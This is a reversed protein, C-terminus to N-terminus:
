RERRLRGMRARRGEARKTGLDAGTVHHGTPSLFEALTSVTPYQFLDTMALEYGQSRLSNLIQVVLVSHGGLDFFSDQTGVQKVHLAECWMAAIKEELPNAPQILPGRALESSEDPAPLAKRDVKVNPTLPLSELCVYATPIMFETLSARIKQRLSPLDLAQGAKTVLYAVLRKDGPTDERVLVVAESVGAVDVLASEIEGLEIRFGRFKVQTDGRGLFEVVGDNRFRALDGTRYMRAGERASFPDAVFHEANLDARGHYGRVVGEGGICLHGPVGPPVPQDNNDLVYLRTNAIPRGIPITGTGEGVHHTSSWITTETPGYMNTITSDPNLRRLDDALGRSFVEGGIMLHNISALADRAQPDSLLMSCMSPTCQM